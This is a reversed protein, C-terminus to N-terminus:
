SRERRVELDRRFGNDRKNIHRVGAVPEAPKANTANEQKPNPQM